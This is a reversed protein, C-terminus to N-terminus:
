SSIIELLNKAIMKRDNYKKVFERGKGGMQRRLDPNQILYSITEYISDVDNDAILGSGSDEAIKKIEGKGTAVFPVGCSMYEYSKTPIAYELIDLDKLPAVGIMSENILDPVETRDVLGKFFVHNDINNSKVFSELHKKIDGDGVLYFDLASDQDENIKKGALIVM